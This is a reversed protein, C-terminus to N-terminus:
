MGDYEIKYHDLAMFLVNVAICLTIFLETFADFVLIALLESFRIWVRACDWVCLVTSVKKLNDLAVTKFEPGEYDEDEEDDKDDDKFCVTLLPM